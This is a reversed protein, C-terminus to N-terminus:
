MPDRKPQSNIFHEFDAIRSLAPGVTVRPTDSQTLHAGVSSWPWDKAQQVLGAKVPNLAIYRFAAMLHDEDM